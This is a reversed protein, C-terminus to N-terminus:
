LSRNLRKMLSPSRAPVANGSWAAVSVGLVLSLLWALSQCYCLSLFRFQQLRKVSSVPAADREAEGYREEANGDEETVVESSSDKIQEGWPRLTVTDKVASGWLVNTKVNESLSFQLREECVQRSVVGRSSHAISNQDRRRRGKM